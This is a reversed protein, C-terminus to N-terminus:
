GKIGDARPATLFKYFVKIYIIFPVTWVISSYLYLEYSYEEYFPILGRMLTAAVILAVMSHTYINSTLHRGTHIQAIIIMVMLYALGYGGSTVFHRFHTINGIEGSLIAWGMLAYGLGLMVFIMSLYIVYPQNLIFKDKLIYDNTIALVAAGTALGLWGLASNEPYFLEVITFTIITFVALNTLPPRAVYVDDIGKDEMLENVAEMNVRRLALLILIVSAGLAVKLIDMPLTKAYGAMSAFFWVEIIFLALLTYGLSAHRQLKDLVTSRAFWILWGLMPLNLIAAIYVGTIDIFWFSVRGVLWLIVVYKLKKGIFPVTGPFLEPLGTSLFAMVGATLIGFIMEYVHWVLVNNMFPINVTGSWVLGWLLM